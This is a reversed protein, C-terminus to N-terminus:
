DVRRLTVFCNDAVGPVDPGKSQCGPMDTIFSCVADLKSEQINREPSPVALNFWQGGSVATIELYHAEEEPKLDTGSVHLRVIKGETIQVKPFCPLFEVSGRLARDNQLLKLTMTSPHGSGSDEEDLEGM